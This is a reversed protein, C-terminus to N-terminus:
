EEKSDEIIIISSNAGTENNVGNNAKHSVENSVVRQYNFIGADFQKKLYAIVGLILAVVLVFSLVQILLTLLGTVALTPNSIGMGYGMSGNISVGYGTFGYRMSPNLFNQLLTFVVVIGIIAATIGVVTKLIPDDNVSKLVNTNINTNKFFTEKLWMIVGVIVAIVLVGLLLKVLLVLVGALLADISFASGGINGAYHGGMSSGGGIFINFLLSFAITGMIIILLMRIIPDNKTTRTM